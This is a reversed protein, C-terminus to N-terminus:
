RTKPRGVIQLKVGGGGLSFVQHLSGFIRFIEKKQALNQPRNKDDM